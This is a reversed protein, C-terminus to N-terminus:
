KLIEMDDSFYPLNCLGKKLYLRLKDYKKALRQLEQPVNVINSNAIKPEFHIEYIHVLHGKEKTTYDISQTINVIHEEGKSFDLHYNCFHATIIGLDLSLLIIYTIVGMLFHPRRKIIEKDITIYEKKIKFYFIAFYVLCFSGFSFITNINIGKYIIHYSAPNLIICWYFIIFIFLISFEHSIKYLFPFNKILLTEYEKNEENIEYNNKGKKKNTPMYLDTPKIIISIIFCVIIVTWNGM